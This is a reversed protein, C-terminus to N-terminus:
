VIIHLITHQYDNELAGIAITTGFLVSVLLAFYLRMIAITVPTKIAANEPQKM